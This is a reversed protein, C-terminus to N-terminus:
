RGQALRLRVSMGGAKLAHPAPVETTVFNAIHKGLADEVHACRAQLHSLKLDQEYRSAVLSKKRLAMPPTVCRSAAQAVHQGDDKSGHGNLAGQSAVEGPTSHTGTGLGVNSVAAACSYLGHPPLAQSPQEEAHL